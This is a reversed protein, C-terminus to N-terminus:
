SNISYCVKVEQIFNKNEDIRIKTKNKNSSYGLGKEM